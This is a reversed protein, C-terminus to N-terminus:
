SFASFYGLLYAISSDFSVSEPVHAQRLVAEHISRLRHPQCFFRQGDVLLDLARRRLRHALLQRFPMLLSTQWLSNEHLLLCELPGADVIERSLLAGCHM